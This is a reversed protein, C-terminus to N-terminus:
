GCHVRMRDLQVQERQAFMHAPQALSPADLAERAPVPAVLRTAEIVPDEILPYVILEVCRSARLASTVASTLSEVQAEGAQIQARTHEREEAPRHEMAVPRAGATMKSVLVRGEPRNSALSQHGETLTAL